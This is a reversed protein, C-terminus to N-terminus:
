CRGRSAGAPLSSFLTRESGKQCLTDRNRVHFTSKKARSPINM